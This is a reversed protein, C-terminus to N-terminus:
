VGTFCLLIPFLRLLAFFNPLLRRWFSKSRPPLDAIDENMFHVSCSCGCSRVAILREPGLKQKVQELWADLYSKTDHHPVLDPRNVESMCERLADMKSERDHYGENVIVIPCAHPRPVNPVFQTFRDYHEAIPRSCMMSAITSNCRIMWEEVLDNSEYKQGQSAENAYENGGGSVERQRRMMKSMIRMTVLGVRVIELHAPKPLHSSNIDSTDAGDILRQASEYTLRAVSRIVTRQVAPAKM